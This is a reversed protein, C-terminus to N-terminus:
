RREDKPRDGRPTERPTERAGERGGDPKLKLVQATAADLELKLLRGDAQLLKVEYIWRGRKRDHELELELVQGPHTRQLRELLTALPMVEGAQVAVRAREHDGDRGALAPPAVFVALASAFVLALESSPRDFM